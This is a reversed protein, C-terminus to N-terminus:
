KSVKTKLITIEATDKCNNILQTTTQHLLPHKYNPAIENLPYLVFKRDKMLPHPVILNPYNFIGESSYIIDIDIPRNEYVASKKQKRGLDKEIKQFISLCKKTSFETEVIICTNFFSNGIFGWAPTEYISAKSKIKGIKDQIQLIADDIFQLKDGINSGLSIYLKLKLHNIKEVHM